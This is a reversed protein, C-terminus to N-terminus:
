SFGRATQIAKDLAKSAYIFIAAQLQQLIALDDTSVGAVKNLLTDVMKLCKTVPITETEFKKGMIEKCHKITANYFKKKTQEMLTNGAQEPDYTKPIRNIEINIIKQRSQISKLTKRPM